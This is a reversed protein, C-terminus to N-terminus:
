VLWVQSNSQNKTLCKSLRLEAGAADGQLLKVKAMYFLSETSGPVVRNVTELVEQVSQLKHTV